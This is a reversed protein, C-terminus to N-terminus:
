KEKSDNQKVSEEDAGSADTTVDSEEKKKRNGLIVAGATGLVVDAVFKGLTLGFGAAFGAKSIDSMKIVLKENM